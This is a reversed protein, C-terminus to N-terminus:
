TCRSRSAGSHLSEWLMLLSGPSGPYPRFHAGAPLPAALSAEFGGLAGLSDRDEASWPLSVADEWIMMPVSMPVAGREDRLVAKAHVENRLPLAFEGGGGGGGSKLLLEHVAAAFPGACNVFASCALRREGGDAQVKVARLRGADDAEFGTVTAPSLTEVGAPRAVELLRTGMQQANMWGCRESFLVSRVEPGLFPPLDGFFTDIAARGSFVRVGDVAADYPLDARYRLGHAGDVHVSGGGGGLRDVAQAAQVHRASGETTSSLFCYGRRSMSFANDCEAARAELLDISRNMFATMPANGAWYNRYCETSRSSTYTLPPRADVLVVDRGHDRALYHACAVGVAGAGCVVVPERAVSSLARRTVAPLFPMRM